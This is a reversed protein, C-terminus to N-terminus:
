QSSVMFLSVSVNTPSVRTINLSVATVNLTVLFEPWSSYMSFFSLFLLRFVYTMKEDLFQNRRVDSLVTTFRSAQSFPYATM